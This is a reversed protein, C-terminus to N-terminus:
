GRWPKAKGSVPKTPVLESDTNLMHRAIRIVDSGRERLPPLSIRYQALRFILDRRFDGQDAMSLLDRHTASVLRVDVRIERTGGVRRIRREQIVRLLKAQLPASMEGVEDLFLTGVDTAEFLGRKQADAGTFAGKEYGFLDAELVGPAFTACNVALFQGRRGSYAHVLRAISEKGTGTEGQVLVSVSRPGVRGTASIAVRLAPCKGIITAEIKQAPSQQETQDM